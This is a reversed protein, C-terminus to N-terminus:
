EFQKAHFATKLLVEVLGVFRWPLPDAQTGAPGNPNGQINAVVAGQSAKLNQHLAHVRGKQAIAPPSHADVRVKCGDVVQAEQRVPKLIVVDQLQLLHVSPSHRQGSM